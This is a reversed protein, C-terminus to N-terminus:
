DRLTRRRTTDVMRPTNIKNTQSLLDDHAVQQDDQTQQQPRRRRGHCTLTPIPIPSGPTLMPM